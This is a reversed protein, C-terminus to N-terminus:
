AVLAAILLMQAGIATATFVTGEFTKMIHRRNQIAISRHLL